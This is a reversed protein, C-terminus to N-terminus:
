WSPNINEQDSDINNKNSASWKIRRTQSYNTYWEVQSDIRKIRTQDHSTLIVQGSM